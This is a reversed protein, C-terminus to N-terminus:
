PRSRGCGVLHTMRQMMTFFSYHSVGREPEILADCHVYLHFVNLFPADIATYLRGLRLRWLTHRISTSRALFAMMLLFILPDCSINFNYDFLLIAWLSVTVIHSSFPCRRLLSPLLFSLLLPSGMVPHM